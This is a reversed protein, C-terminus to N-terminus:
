PSEESDRSPEEALWGVLSRAAGGLAPDPTLTLRVRTGLSDNIIRGTISAQGISHAVLPHISLSTLKQEVGSRSMSCLYDLQRQLEGIEIRSQRLDKWLSRTRFAMTTTFTMAVGLLGASVVVDIMSTGRRRLITRRIPQDARISIPDTM